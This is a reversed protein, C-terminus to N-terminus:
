GTFLALIHRRSEGALLYATSFLLSSHLPLLLHSSIPICGASGLLRLSCIAVFCVFYPWCLALSYSPQFYSFESHIRYFVLNASWSTSRSWTIWDAIKVWHLGLYLISGFRLIFVKTTFPGQVSFCSACDRTQRTELNSVQCSLVSVFHEPGLWCGSYM